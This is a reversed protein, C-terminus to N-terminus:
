GGAAAPVQIWAHYSGDHGPRDKEGEAPTLAHEARLKGGTKECIYASQERNEANELSCTSYLLHGGPSLHELARDIIQRQLSVLSALREANFRYKAQPRRALVGTNSCPVDLLILDYKGAPEAVQLAGAGVPQKRLRETLELLDARRRDDPDWATIQSDPHTGLLQRTKTGRGACLDLIRAPQLGATNAVARRSAPDQVRRVPHEALWRKLVYHGESWARYEGREDFVITQPTRLSALAISAAAQPSYQDVWARMLPRPVSLAVSLHRVVNSTPPLVQEHLVVAGGVAPLADQAMKWPEPTRHKVLEALRRLVANVMGSAPKNARRAAIEVSEDIVAYAPQDMFLLQAAGALLTARLAPATQSVPRDAFRDLLHELTLWRQLVLREIAITLPADAQDLEADAVAVPIDPFARCAPALRDVARSRAPPQM